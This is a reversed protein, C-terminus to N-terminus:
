ASGSRTAIPQLALAALAMHSHGRNLRWGVLRAGRQAPQERPRGISRRWALLV